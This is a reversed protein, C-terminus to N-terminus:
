LSIYSLDPFLKLIDTFSLFNPFCFLIISQKYFYDCYTQGGGSSYEKTIPSRWEERQSAIKGSQVRSKKVHKSQGVSYIHCSSRSSFCECVVPGPARKGPGGRHGSTFWGPNVEAPSLGGSEGLWGQQVPSLGWCIPSAM